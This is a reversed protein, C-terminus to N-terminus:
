LSQFSSFGSPNDPTEQPLTQALVIEGQCMGPGKRADCVRHDEQFDKLSPYGYAEGCRSCQAEIEGAPPPSGTRGIDDDHDDPEEPRPTRPGFVEKAYWDLFAKLYAKAKDTRFYEDGSMQVLYETFQDPPIMGQKAAELYEIGNDVYYSVGPVLREFYAQDGAEIAQRLDAILPHFPAAPAASGASPPPIPVGSSRAPGTVARPADPIMGKSERFAAIGERVTSFAEGIHPALAKFVEVTASSRGEASPSLERLIGLAETLQKLLGVYNDPKDEPLLGAERMRKLLAIPDETKPPEAEKKLLTVAEILDKMSTPAPASGTRGTVELVSKVTDAIAGAIKSPDGPSQASLFPQVAAHLSQTMEAVDRVSSKLTPHTSDTPQPAQDPIRIGIAFPIEAVGPKGHIHTRIIYEGSGWKQKIAYQQILTDLDDIPVDLEIDCLFDPSRGPLESAKYIKFYYGQNVPLRSLVDAAIAGSRNLDIFRRRDFESIEEPGPDPESPDIDKPPTKGM